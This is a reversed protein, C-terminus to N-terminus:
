ARRWLPATAPRRRAGTRASRRRRCLEKVPAGAAGEGLIGVIQEETLRSKRM